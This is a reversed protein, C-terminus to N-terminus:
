KKLSEMFERLDTFVIDPKTTFAGYDRKGSKVCVTEIKANVGAKIDSESDGIMVTDKPNIGLHDVFGPLEDIKNKTVFVSEVKEEIDTIMAKTHQYNCRGQTVCYSMAGLSSLTNLVEFAYPLAMLCSNKTKKFNFFLRAALSHEHHKLKLDRVEPSNCYEEFVEADYDFFKREGEKTKTSSYISRLDAAFKDFSPFSNSAETSESVLKRYARALGMETAERTNILTDDLDFLFFNKDSLAVM